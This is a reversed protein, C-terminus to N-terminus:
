IKSTISLTLSRIHGNHATKDPPPHPIIDIVLRSPRYPPKVLWMIPEVQGLGGLGRTACQKRRSSLLRLALAVPSSPDGLPLNGPMAYHGCYAFLSGGPKLVRAAFAALDGYIPLADKNYPPDTFILAVLEDAVDALVDRFDGLRIEPAPVSAADLAAYGRQCKGKRDQWGM